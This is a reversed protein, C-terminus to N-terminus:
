GGAWRSLLGLDAMGAHQQEIKGDKILFLAPIGRVGYRAAVAPEADIDIKVFRAKPELAQAARDFVPAMARCPGCWSAWFDVILPTDGALHKELRDATLSVPEGAFLASKCRGCKAAKADRAASVRNKADCRPCVVLKTESM